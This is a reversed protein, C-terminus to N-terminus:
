GRKAASSRACSRARPTSISSSQVGGAGNALTQHALSVDDQGAFEDCPHSEGGLPCACHGFEWERDDAAEGNRAPETMHVSRGTVDIRYGVFDRGHACFTRAGLNENFEANRLGIGTTSVESAYSM